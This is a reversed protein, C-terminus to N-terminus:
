TAQIWGAQAPIVVRSNVRPRAQIAGDGLRVFVILGRGILRGVSRGADARVRRRVERWRAPADDCDEPPVDALRRWAVLFAEAAIDQAESPTRLQAYRLVASCPADFLETLRADRGPPREDM